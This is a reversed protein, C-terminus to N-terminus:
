SIGTILGNTVTITTGCSAFTGSVGEVGGASFTTANVTGNVDLKTTPTTTGIGVFGNSALIKMRATNPGPLTMFTINNDGVIFLGNPNGLDGRLVGGGAWADVYSSAGGYTSSITQISTYGDTGTGLHTQIAAISQNGSVSSDVLLKTVGNVNNRFHWQTNEANPVGGFGIATGPLFVLRELFGGTGGHNYPGEYVYLANSDGSARSSITWKENADTRADRGFYLDAPVDGNSHLFTEARDAVRIGFGIAINGNGSAFSIQDSM